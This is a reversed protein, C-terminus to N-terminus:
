SFLEKICDNYEVLEQKEGSSVAALVWTNAEIFAHAVEVMRACSVNKIRNPVEDYNVIFDDTFYRHTYFNSIQAVTQAGMQHRGLAYSKAAELEAETIGGDLVIRLEDRM